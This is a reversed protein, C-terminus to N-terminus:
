ERSLGKVNDWNKSIYQSRTINDGKIEKRTDIKGGKKFQIVVEEVDDPVDVEYHMKIGRIFAPSIDDVESRDLLLYCWECTKSKIQAEYNKNIPRYFLKIIKNIVDQYIQRIFIEARHTEGFLM